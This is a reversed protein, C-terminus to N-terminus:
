KWGTEIPRFDTRRRFAESAQRICDDRERHIASRLLNWREIVERRQSPNSRFSLRLATHVKEVKERNRLPLIELIRTVEAFRWLSLRYILDGGNRVGRHPRQQSSRLKPSFRMGFLRNSIASLLDYNLNTLTLEFGGWESKKHYFIGGDADFFGALFALFEEDSSSIWKQWGEKELLFTFSSDLDCDLSWEFETLESRKPYKYIPGHSAFLGRFLEIMAPHTTGLKARVALGHKMCMFDGLALGCIYAKEADDGEFPSKQHKTVARIQAEVKARLKLGRKKLHLFVTVPSLESGAISKLSEGSQYRRIWNDVMAPTVKQIHEARDRRAIGFKKLHYLVLTESSKPNPHNLRYLKAIKAASLKEAAYLRELDERNPPWRLDAL